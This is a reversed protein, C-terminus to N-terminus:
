PRAMKASLIGGRLMAERSITAPLELASGGFWASRVRCNQKSNSKVHLIFRRDDPYFFTVVNFLPRRLVFHMEGEMEEPCLGISNLLFWVAKIGKPDDQGISEAIGAEAYARILSDLEEEGVEASFEESYIASLKDLLEPVTSVDKFSPLSLVYELAAYFTARLPAELTEIEIHDSLGQRQSAAESPEKKIDPKATDVGGKLFTSPKDPQNTRGTGALLRDDEIPRPKRADSFHKAPRSGEVLAYAEDTSKNSVASRVVLEENPALVFTFAAKVRYEKSGDALTVRERRVNYSDFRHSFRAYYYLEPTDSAPDFSRKYARITQHDVFRLDMDENSAGSLFNDVDILFGKEAITDPFLYHQTAVRGKAYINAKVGYRTFEASYEGTEHHLQLNEYGSAYATFQTSDKEGIYVWVPRGVFPSQLFGIQSNGGANQMFGSLYDNEYTVYKSEKAHFRTVPFLNQAAGMLSLCFLFFLVFFKEKSSHM